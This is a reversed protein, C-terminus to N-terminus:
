KVNQKRQKGKIHEETYNKMLAFHLSHSNNFTLGNKTKSKDKERVTFKFMHIHWDSARRSIKSFPRPRM